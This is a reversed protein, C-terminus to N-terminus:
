LVKNCRSNVIAIAVSEMKNLLNNDILAGTSFRGLKGPTTAWGTALSFVYFSSVPQCRQEIVLVYSLSKQVYYLIVDLM